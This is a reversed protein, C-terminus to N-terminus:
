EKAFIKQCQPCFVTTRGAIKGSQLQESCSTCSDGKKGYVKFSNQFAGANGGSDRYDRISSGNEQIALRLVKQVESHLVILKEKPIDAGKAAPHIGSAFLSEDAYINGIGAIVKQNLLLGKIGAKKAGMIDVFEGASMELPEPGLTRYFPWEELEDQTYLAIRGFRRMDSFLLRCGDEFHLAVRLYRLTDTDAPIEHEMVLRGSMRLHVALIYKEEGNSVDALFVKGRRWVRTFVAGEARRAFVEADGTISGEALTEVSAIKRDKLLPTLGRAITEIEPLEPM